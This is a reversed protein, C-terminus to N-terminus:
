ARSARVDRYARQARSWVSLREAPATRLVLRQEGPSVEVVDDVRVQDTHLKWTGSCVALADPRDLRSRYVVHDVVGLRGSPGDVRFGECHGLWYDEDVPWPYRRGADPADDATLALWVSRPLLHM